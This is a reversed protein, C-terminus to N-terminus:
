YGVGKDGERSSISIWRIERDTQRKTEKDTEIDIDRETQRDGTERM